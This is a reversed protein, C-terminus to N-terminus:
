LLSYNDSQLCYGVFIPPMDVYKSLVTFPIVIKNDIISTGIERDINIIKTWM